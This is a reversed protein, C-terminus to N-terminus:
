FLFSMIVLATVSTHLEAAKSLQRYNRLNNFMCNRYLRTFGSRLTYGPSIFVLGYLSVGTNMIALFHSCDLHGDVLSHYTFLARDTCHFTIQSYFSTNISAAMFTSQCRSASLFLGTVFSQM